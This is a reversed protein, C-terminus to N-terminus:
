YRWVTEWCRLQSFFSVGTRLGQALSLALDIFIRLRQIRRM